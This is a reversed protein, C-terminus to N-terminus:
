NSHCMSKIIESEIKTHMPQSVCHLVSCVSRLKGFSAKAVNASSHAPNRSSFVLVVDDPTRKFVADSASDTKQPTVLSRGRTGPQALPSLHTFPQPTANENSKAPTQEECTDETKGHLWFIVLQKKPKMKTISQNSDTLCNFTLKENKLIIM